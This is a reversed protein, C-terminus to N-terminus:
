VRAPEPRLDDPVAPGPQGRLLRLPDGPVRPVAANRTASYFRSFGIAALKRRTYWDAMRRKWKKFEDTQWELWQDKPVKLGRVGALAAPEPKPDAAMSQVEGVSFHKGVELVVDLVEANVAWRTRQLMNVAKLVIPM